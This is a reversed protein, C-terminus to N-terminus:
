VRDHMCFQSGPIIQRSFGQFEPDTFARTIQRARDSRFNFFIVSDGRGIPSRTVEGDTNAIVSPPVFGDTVGAAYSHQMAEGANSFLAGKGNVLCDYAAQVREWRNDRDMAYYRGVISAIKGVGKAQIQQSPDTRLFAAGSQPATDRGDTFCHIVVDTM